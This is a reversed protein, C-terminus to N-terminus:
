PGKFFIRYILIFGIHGRPIKFYQLLPMKSALMRYNLTRAEMSEIIQIDTTTKMSRGTVRKYVFSIHTQLKRISLAQSFTGLM